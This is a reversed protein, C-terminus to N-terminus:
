EGKISTGKLTKKVFNEYADNNKPSWYVFFYGEHEVLKKYALNKDHKMAPQAEKKTGFAYGMSKFIRLSGKTEFTKLDSPFKIKKSDRKDKTKSTRKSKKPKKPKLSM